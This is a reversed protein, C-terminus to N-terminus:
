TVAVPALQHLAQRLATEAERSYAARPRFRVYGQRDILLVYYLEASARQRIAAQSVKHTIVPNAKVVGIGAAQKDGELAQMTLFFKRPNADAQGGHLVDDVPM